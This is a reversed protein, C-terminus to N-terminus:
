DVPCVGGNEHFGVARQQLGQALSQGQDGLGIGGDRAVDADILLVRSDLEMAMSLALNIATFTKGEGPLASTVMILNGRAVSTARVNALLPRKLLRFEEALETRPADPTLFGAAALRAIDLDVRRSQAGSTARVRMEPHTQVHTQGTPMSSVRPMDSIDVGAQRLAELRQAAKEIISM